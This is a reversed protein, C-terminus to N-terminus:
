IRSAAAGELVVCHGATLVISESPTNIATGSCTYTGEKPDIGIIKGNTRTGVESADLVRLSSVLAGSSRLPQRGPVQLPTSPGNAATGGVEIVPTAAAAAPLALMATGILLAGLLRRILTGTAYGM